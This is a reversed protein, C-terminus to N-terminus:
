GAVGLRECARQFFEPLAVRLGREDLLLLWRRGVGWELVEGTGVGFPFGRPPTCALRAARARAVAAEPRGARAQVVALNLWAPVLGEDEVLARRLESEASTWDGRAAQIAGRNARLEPLEQELLAADLEELAADSAGALALAVALQGRRYGDERGAAREIAVARAYLRQAREPRGSALEVAALNDLWPVPHASGSILRGYIGRAEDYEGFYFHVAATAPADARRPRVVGSMGVVCSGLAIAALAAFSAGRLAPQSRTALAEVGRALFVGFPLSLGLLYSAKLASWIPVRWSFLAFAALTVVAHVWLAVYVPRRRGGRVDRLALVAGFAALASPFLGALMMARGSAHSVLAREVDSERFVDAWADAYATGWVSHLMHPSRPDPDVLLGVPVRVYDLWSRTGPKQDREVEAVLPYSRSLEFPTGFQRVNRAYYPAAILLAVATLLAGRALARLLGRSGDRARGARLALTACATVIPLLGSFKTLLALGALAGAGADGRWTPVTRRDNAIFVCLSAACLVSLTMENGPMAGVFVQVPLFAVAGFGVLALAPREPSVQRVLWAALFATVLSAAGGLLPLGRMLAEGSGFQALGWGLAYHLPPHFYSWGQDAWPLGRYLDLFLVYAVHGWADYGWMRPGAIANWLRVGVAAVIVALWALTLGPHRGRL